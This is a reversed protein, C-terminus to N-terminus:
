EGSKQFFRILKTLFIFLGPAERQLPQGPPSVVGVPVSVKGTRRPAGPSCVCWVVVVVVGEKGASTPPLPSPPFLFYVELHCGFTGAGRAPQLISGRAGFNRPSRGCVCRGGRMVGGDASGLARGARRTEEPSLRAPLRGQGGVPGSPHPPCKLPALLVRLARGGGGEVCLCVCLPRSLRSPAKSKQSSYGPYYGYYGTIRLIRDEITAVGNPAAKGDM